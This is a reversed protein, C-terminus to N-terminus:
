FSPQQYGWPFRPHEWTVAAPHGTDGSSCDKYPGLLHQAEPLTHQSFDAAGRPSLRELGPSSLPSSLRSIAQRQRDCM